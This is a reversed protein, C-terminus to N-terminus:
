APTVAPVGDIRADAGLLRSGTKFGWSL